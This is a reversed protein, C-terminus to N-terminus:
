VFLLVIGAFLAIFGVLRIPVYLFIHQSDLLRSTWAPTTLLDLGARKDLVWAIALTVIASVILSIGVVLAHHTDELDGIIWRLPIYSLVPVVILARGFGQFRMDM